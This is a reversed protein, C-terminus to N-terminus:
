GVELAVPLGERCQALGEGQGRGNAPGNVQGMPAVPARAEIAARPAGGNTHLEHDTPSLENTRTEPEETRGPSASQGLPPAPANVVQQPGGHSNNTQQKIFAVLRPNKLEALTELTTRCQSQAKLALRLLTEAARLNSEMSREARIALSSFIASLASAQGVLMAEAKRLDGSQVEAIVRGMAGMAEGEDIWNAGFTPRNYVTAVKVTSVTGESAVTNIIHLAKEREAEPSEVTAKAEANSMPTPNKM